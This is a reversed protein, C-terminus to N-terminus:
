SLIWYDEGDFNVRTYDSKLLDAAVAWDICNFPWDSSMNDTYMSEALNRAYDEFYDDRILEAGGQWNGYAEAARELDVFPELENQLEKIDDRVERVTFEIESVDRRLAELNNELRAVEDDDITGYAEAEAIVLEDELESIESQKEDLATDLEQQESEKDEIDSQLAAIRRIVDRSDIIDDNNSIERAM